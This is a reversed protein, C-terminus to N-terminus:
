ERAEFFVQFPTMKTSEITYLFAYDVLQFTNWYFGEVGSVVGGNSHLQGHFSNQLPYGQYTFLVIKKNCSFSNNIKSVGRVKLIATM